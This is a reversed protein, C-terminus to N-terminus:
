AAAAPRLCSQDVADRVNVEGAEYRLCVLVTTQRLPDLDLKVGVMPMGVGCEDGPQHLLDHLLEPLIPILQRVGDCAVRVVKAVGGLQEGQQLQRALHRRAMSQRLAHCRLFDLAAM